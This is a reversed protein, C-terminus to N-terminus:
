SHNAARSERERDILARKRELGWRYGGLSGDGRIVRHCPILLAVRNSACASAVARVAKPQGIGKAVESYSQVEGYPIKQLYRWVKIQFATGHVDLPLDPSPHKGKLYATLTQMWQRFVPKMEGQMPTLSAQPYEQRLQDLLNNESNGFQVFCLGRDTAGLMLLGFPTESTAHSIAVDLGGARYQRPTMGLHTAVKEYVRSTSGFGADYIARTVSGSDRLDSRLSRLRCAEQYQRPSVGVRTKFQRQLHHPSMHIQRGLTELTLKEDAHTEIFRCLKEIKQQLVGGQTELPCCRKCPRLGDAEADTPSAYFRVNERLAQRPTPCSPRCYVGTTLVGYFFEGDRSADRAQVAKWCETENMM